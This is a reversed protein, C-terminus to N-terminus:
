CLRGRRTRCVIWVGAQNQPSFNASSVLDGWLCSGLTGYLYYHPFSSPRPLPQPFLAVYSLVKKLKVLPSHGLYSLVKSLWWSALLVHTQLSAVLLRENCFKATRIIAFSSVWRCRWIHWLLGSSCASPGSFLSQARSVLGISGVGGFGPSWFSPLAIHRM